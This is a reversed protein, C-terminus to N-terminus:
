TGLNDLSISLSKVPDFNTQYSSKRLSKTIRYIKCARRGTKLITKVQPFYSYSKELVLDRNVMSVDSKDMILRNGDLKDTLKMGKFRVKEDIFYQKRGTYVAEGCDEKKWKGLKLNVINSPLKDKLHISDTDCYVVTDPHKVIERALAVRGLATVQAAINIVRHSVNRPQIVEYLGRSVDFPKVVTDRELILDKLQFYDLRRLVAKNEKQGFKGYLSNLLIKCIYNMANGRNEMRLKYYYDVFERFLYVSRIWVYGKLVVIDVGNELALRLESDFFHGEGSYVFELGNV